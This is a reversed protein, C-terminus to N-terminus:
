FCILTTKSQNVIIDLIKEVIPFINQITKYIIRTQVKHWASLKSETSDSIKVGVKVKTIQVACEPRQRNIAMFLSYTILFIVCDKQCKGCRHKCEQSILM